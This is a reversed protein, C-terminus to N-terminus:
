ASSVLEAKATVDIWSNTARNSVFAFGGNVVIAM